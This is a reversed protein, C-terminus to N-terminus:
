RRVNACGGPGYHYCGEVDIGMEDLMMGCGPCPGPPGPAESFENQARCVACDCQENVGRIIYSHYHQEFHERCVWFLRDLRPDDMHKRDPLNVSETAESDCSGWEEVPDSHHRMANLLEYQQCKRYDSSNIQQRIATITNM